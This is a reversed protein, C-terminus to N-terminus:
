LLYFPDRLSSELMEDFFCLEGANIQPFHSSFLLSMLVIFRTSSARASLDWGSICRWRRLM